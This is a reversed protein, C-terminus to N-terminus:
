AWIVEVDYSGIARDVTVFPIELMRSQAILLRNFPDRHHMPLAAAETTHPVEIALAETGSASMRRPVYTAPPEPLQLKELKTKIGIEWTSATSPLLQETHELQDLVEPSIRSPEVQLLLWVHTDVLLRM